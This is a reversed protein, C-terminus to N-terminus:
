IYAGVTDEPKRLILCDQRDRPWCLLILLFQPWSVFLQTSEVSFVLMCVAASSMEEDWSMRSSFAPGM